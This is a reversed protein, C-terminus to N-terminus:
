FPWTAPKKFGWSFGPHLRPIVKGVHEINWLEYEWGDQSKMLLVQPRSKKKEFHASCGGSFASPFVYSVTAIDLFTIPIYATNAQM